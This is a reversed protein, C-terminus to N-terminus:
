SKSEEFKYGVGFVTKIYRPTKPEQEIKLRLNKIHTDITREYGEFDYGQVKNILELRTYVRGPYSSLSLLLQFESPTLDVKKGNINVEHKLTDITLQGDDFGLLPNTKDFADKSRRLHAKVRALLERPSFPKTLYDDAGLNLGHVKDEDQSKATLMLIPVNSSERITKCVQEGPLDPLMLDLIIMDPQNQNFAELAQEGNFATIVKYGEKQLYLKITEIIKGEDDVILVKM